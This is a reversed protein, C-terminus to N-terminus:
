GSQVTLDHENPLTSLQQIHKFTKDIIRIRM